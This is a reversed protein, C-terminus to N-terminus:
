GTTRRDVRELHVVISLWDLGVASCIDRLGAVNYGELAEPEQLVPEIDWGIAEGLAEATM